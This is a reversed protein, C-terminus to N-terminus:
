ESRWFNPEINIPTADTHTLKQLAELNIIEYFVASSKPAEPEYHRM